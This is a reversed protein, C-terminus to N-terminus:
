RHSFYHKVFPFKLSTNGPDRQCFRPVVALLRHGVEMSAPRHSTAVLPAGAMICNQRHHLPMGLVTTGRRQGRSGTSVM